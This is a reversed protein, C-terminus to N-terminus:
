IFQYLLEPIVIRGKIQRAIFVRVKIQQLVIAGIFYRYIRFFQLGVFILNNLGQVM